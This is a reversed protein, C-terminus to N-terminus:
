RNPLPKKAKLGDKEIIATRTSRWAPHGRGVADWKGERYSIIAYNKESDELDNPHLEEDIWNTYTLPEGTDWKWEGETEIDTLGIWSPGHRFIAELWIQESVSNITVLHADENAAKTYADDWNKCSIKKYVHQNEPNIVWVNYAVSYMPPDETIDFETPSQKQTIDDFSLVVPKYEGEEAINVFGSVTNHGFYNAYLSYVGTQYIYYVFNGDTDTTVSGHLRDHGTGDLQCYRLNINVRQNSLPVGDKFVIKGELPKLFKVTIEIDDINTEPKTGFVFIEESRSTLHPFIHAEGIRITYIQVDTNSIYREQSPIKEKGIGIQYLGPYIGSLNFQGETDTEAKPIESLRKRIENLDPSVESDLVSPKPQFSPYNLNVTDKLPIVRGDRFIVSFLIISTGEVPEGNIDIVRGNISVMEEAMCLNIYSISVYLLLIVFLAVSNKTRYLIFM